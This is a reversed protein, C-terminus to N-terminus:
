DHCTDLRKPQAILANYSAENAKKIAETIALTSFM